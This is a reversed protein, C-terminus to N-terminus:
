RVLAAGAASPAGLLPDGAILLVAVIFKIDRSPNLLRTALVSAAVVVAPLTYRALLRPVAHIM